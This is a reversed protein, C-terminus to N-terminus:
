FLGTIPEIQSIIQVKIPAERQKSGDDAAYTRSNESHRVNKTFPSTTNECSTSDKNNYLRILFRM